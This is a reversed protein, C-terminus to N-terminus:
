WFDGGEPVRFGISMGGINGSRVLELVDRALQTSPLEIRFALGGRTEWLTLFGSRTRALLKEPNHDVLALVDARSELSKAFAGPAIREKFNPLKAPKDFVAALGELRRMDGRIEEIRIELPSARREM